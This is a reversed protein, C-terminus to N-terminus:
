LEAWINRSSLSISLCMCLTDSINKGESAGSIHKILSNILNRHLNILGFDTSCFESQECGNGTFGPPCGCEGSIHHCSTGQACSCRQMCSKGYTGPLCASPFCSCIVHKFSTLVDLERVLSVFVWNFPNSSIKFLIFIYLLTVSLPNKRWSISIATTSKSYPSLSHDRIRGMIRLTQFCLLKVVSIVPCVKDVLPQLLEVCGKVAPKYRQWLTKREVGASVSVRWHRPSMFCWACVSMEGWLWCWVPRSWVSLLPLHLNSTIILFFVCYQWNWLKWLTATGM